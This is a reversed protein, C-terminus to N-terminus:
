LNYADFLEDEIDSVDLEELLLDDAPLTTMGPLRDFSEDDMVEVILDTELPSIHLAQILADTPIAALSPTSAPRQWPAFLLLLALGAAVAVGAALWTPRQWLPRVRAAPAIQAMVRGPLTDFYGEPVAPPASKDTQALLPAADLPDAASLRAMVIEPLLEFYDEPVPPPPAAQLRRLLPADQLEDHHESLEPM